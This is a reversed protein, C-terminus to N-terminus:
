LSPMMQTTLHITPVIWKLCLASSSASKTALTGEALVRQRIAPEIISM